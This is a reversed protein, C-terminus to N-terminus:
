KSLFTYSVGFVVSVVDDTSPLNFFNHGVKHNNVMGHYWQGELNLSIDKYIYWRAGAFCTVGADFRRDAETFFNQDEVIEGSLYSYKQTEKIEKNGWYAIYGGANFYGEINKYRKFFSATIPLSYYTNKVEWEEKKQWFTEQYNRKQMNLDARLGLWDNFNYQVNVGVMGGCSPYRYHEYDYLTSINRYCRDPGGYLGIRIQGHM